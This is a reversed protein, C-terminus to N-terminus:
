LWRPEAWQMCLWGNLFKETNILKLTTLAEMLTLVHLPLKSNFTCEKLVHGQRVLIWGKEQSGLLCVFIIKDFRDYTDLWQPIMMMM